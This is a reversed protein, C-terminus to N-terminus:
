LSYAVSINSLTTATANIAYNYFRKGDYAIWNYRGTLSGLTTQIVFREGAMYALGASIDLAVSKPRDPSNPYKTISYEGKGEIFLRLRHTGIYSRVFPSIAMSFPTDYAASSSRQRSTSYTLALGVLLNNKMFRGGSLGATIQSQGQDSNNEESIQRNGSVNAFTGVLWRGQQTQPAVVDDMNLTSQGDKSGTLIAVGFRTNNLGTPFSNTANAELAIRKSLVYLAGVQGTPVVQWSLESSSTSRPVRNDNVDVNDYTRRSGSIGGGAYLYLRDAIPWYRRLFVGASLDLIKQSSTFSPTADDYAYASKQYTVGLTYGLLWNDRFFGGRNLSLGTEYSTVTGGNFSDGSSGFALNITGSTITQGKQTQALSPFAPFCALTILFLKKM